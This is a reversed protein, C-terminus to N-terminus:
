IKESCANSNRGASSLLFENLLAGKGRLGVGGKKKYRPVQDRASMDRPEIDAATDPMSHSRHSRCRPPRETKTAEGLSAFFESTKFHRADELERRLQRCPTSRM